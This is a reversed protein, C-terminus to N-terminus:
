RSITVVAPGHLLSVWAHVADRTLRVAQSLRDGDAGTVRDLGEPLHAVAAGPNLFDGTEVRLSKAARPNRDEDEAQPAPRPSGPTMALVRTVRGLPSETGNDLTRALEVADIRAADETSTPGDAAFASLTESQAALFAADTSVASETSATPTEARTVDPVSALAPRTDAPVTAPEDALVFARDDAPMQDDWAALRTNVWRQGAGRWTTMQEASPLSVGLGAVAGVLILRLAM